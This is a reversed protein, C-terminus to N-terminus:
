DDFDSPEKANATVSRTKPKVTVPTQEFDPDSAQGPELELDPVPPLASPTMGKAKVYSLVGLILAGLTALALINIMITLLGTINFVSGTGYYLYGAQLSAQNSPPGYYVSLVIVIGLIVSGIVVITKLIPDRNMSQAWDSNSDLLNTKIWACIGVIVVLVVVAILVRTLLMLIDGM